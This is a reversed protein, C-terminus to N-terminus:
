NCFKYLLQNAEPHHYHLARKWLYCAGDTDGMEHRCIGYNIYVEPLKPNIDLAMSYDKSALKYSRTELFANGRVIFYEAQSTSKELLINMTKIADWYNENKEQTLGLLFLAETEPFYETYKKAYILSEKFRNLKYLAKAKLLILEKNYPQLKEAKDISSLSKSYKKTKFYSKSAIIYYESIHNNLTIAQEIDSIAAHNQELATYIKARLSYYSHRQPYKSILPNIEELAWTFDTEHFYKEAAEFSLEETSYYDQMWLSKWEASNHINSFDSQTKIYACGLHKSSEMHTKLLETATKANGTIAAKRALYFSFYIDTKYLEAIEFSLESFGATDLSIISQIALLKDTKLLPKISQFELNIEESNKKQIISLLRFYNEQYQQASVPLVIILLLIIHLIRKIM